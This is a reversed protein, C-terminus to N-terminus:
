NEAIFEFIAWSGKFVQIEANLNTLKKISYASAIDVEQTDNM